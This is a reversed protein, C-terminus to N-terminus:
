IKLFGCKISFHIMNFLNHLSFLVWILTVYSRSVSTNKCGKLQRVRNERLKANKANWVANFFIFFDIRKQQSRASKKTHYQLYFKSFHLKLATKIKLTLRLNNGNFQSFAIGCIM